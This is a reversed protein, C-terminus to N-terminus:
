KAQIKIENQVMESILDAPSRKTAIMRSSLYKSTFSDLVVAMDKQKAFVGQKGTTFTPTTETLLEDLKKAEEETMRAM